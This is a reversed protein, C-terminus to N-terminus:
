GKFAISLYLGFYSLKSCCIAALSLSFSHNLSFTNDSSYFTTSFFDFTSFPLYMAANFANTLSFAYFILLSSVSIGAIHLQPAIFSLDYSTPSIM